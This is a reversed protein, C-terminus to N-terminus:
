ANGGKRLIRQAGAIRRSTAAIVANFADHWGTDEIGFLSLHIASVLDQAEDLTDIANIRIANSLQKRRETM